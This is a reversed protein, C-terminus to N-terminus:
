SQPVIIGYLPYIGYKLVPQQPPGQCCNGNGSGTDEADGGVLQLMESKQLKLESIRIFNKM